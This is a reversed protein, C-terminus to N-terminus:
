PLLVAASDGVGWNLRLWHCRWDWGGVGFYLYLAYPENDPGILITGGFFILTTNANTRKKWIDPIYHKNMWLTHFIKADLLISATAKLRSYWEEGMISKESPRLLNVLQVQGLNIETLALSREDQEAIRWGDRIFRSPDFPESRDIEIHTSM